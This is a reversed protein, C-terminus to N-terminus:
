SIALVYALFLAGTKQFEPLTTGHAAAFATLATYETPPWNTTLTGPGSDAVPTITGTGTIALVWALGWTGLHQVEENSIGLTTAAGGVATLEAATYHSTVPTPTVDFSIPQAATVTSERAQWMAVIWCPGTECNVTGGSTVSNVLFPLSFNGNTDTTTVDDDNDCNATTDPGDCEAFNMFQDAPWGSGSLTIVAGDALNTSPDVALSGAVEPAIRLPKTTLTSAFDRFDWVAFVCSGDVTCDIPDHNQIFLESTADVFTDFAGSGDTTVLTPNNCETADTAGPICIAAEVVSAAAFSTGHVEISTDGGVPAAPIHLVGGQPPGSAAFALPATVATGQLDTTQAVALVCAGATTTCDVPGNDTRLVTHVVFDFAYKGSGDTNPFVTNGLDCDSISVPGAKCEPSGSAIDAPFGGGSVHV